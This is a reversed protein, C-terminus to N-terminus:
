GPMHRGSDGYVNQRYFERLSMGGEMYGASRSRDFARVKGCSPDSSTPLSRASLDQFSVGEIVAIYCDNVAQFHVLIEDAFHNQPVMLHQSGTIQSTVWAVSISAGKM